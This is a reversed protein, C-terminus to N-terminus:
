EAIPQNQQANQHTWNHPQSAWLIHLVKFEVDIVDNENNEKSIAWHETYKCLVIALTETTATKVTEISMQTLM